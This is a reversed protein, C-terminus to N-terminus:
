DGEQEALDSIDWIRISDDKGGSVMTRGDPAIAAVWVDGTHGRLNAAETNTLLDTFKIVGGRAWTALFRGHPTLTLGSVFGVQSNYERVLNGTGVDYARVLGDDWGSAYATRNDPSFRLPDAVGRQKPLAIRQSNTAIDWIKPIGDAGGSMLLRGDPSYVVNWTWGQDSVFKAIERDESVARLRVTGDSCAIAYTQGDPAIALGNVWEIGTANHHDWSNTPDDVQWWHLLASRGFSVLLKGNPTFVGGRINPSAGFSRIPKGSPFEFLRYQAYRDGMTSNTLIGKGDPTYTATTVGNVNGIMTGIQRNQQRETIKARMESAHAGQPWKTLYRNWSDILNGTSATTWAEQEAPNGGVFSYLALAGILLALAAAVPIFPRATLRPITFKPPARDSFADRVKQVLADADRGFQSNRVETANRRVLPKLHDPLESAKPMTAGDVLVPIVRIDRGLAAAIEVGVFDDPDELRRVGNDDKADLWHLGIIVLFVKCASVQKHLHDVFDVGAPIHDVDMFVHDRGFSQALRDHLRGATGISDDRRYNIFVRGIAM